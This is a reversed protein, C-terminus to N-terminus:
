ITKIIKSIDFMEDLSYYPCEHTIGEFSYDFLYSDILKTTDTPPNAIINDHMSYGFNEPSTGIWFVTSPKNLAAAAHQLSSDILFRKDSVALLTFLDMASM